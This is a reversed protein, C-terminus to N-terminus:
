CPCGGTAGAGAGSESKGAAWVGRASHRENHQSYAESPRALAGRQGGSDIDWCSLVRREDSWRMM